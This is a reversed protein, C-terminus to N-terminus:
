SSRKSTLFHVCLSELYPLCLKAANDVYPLCISPQEWSHRLSAPFFSASSLRAPRLHGFWPCSRSERKFYLWRFRLKPDTRTARHILMNTATYNTNRQQHIQRATWCCPHSNWNVNGRVKRALVWLFMKWNCNCIQLFVTISFGIRRLIKQLRLKQPCPLEPKPQRYNKHKETFNSGLKCNRDFVVWPFWSFKAVRVLRRDLDGVGSLLRSVQVGEM